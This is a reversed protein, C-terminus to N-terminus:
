LTISLNHLQDVYHDCTKYISHCHIGTCDFDPAVEMIKAVFEYYDSEGIYILSTGTDLIAYNINSKKISEHGYRVDEVDVTWWVDYKRTM